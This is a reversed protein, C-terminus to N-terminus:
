ASSQAVPNNEGTEAHGNEPLPLQTSSFESLPNQSPPAISANPTAATAAALDSKHPTSEPPNIKLHFNDDYEGPLSKATAHLGFLELAYREAEAETTPQAVREELLM